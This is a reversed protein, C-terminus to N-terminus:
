SIVEADKLKGTEGDRILKVIGDRKNTANEPVEYWAPTNTDQFMLSVVDPKPEPKIRYENTRDWSPTGADRWTKPYPSYVQIEAGDAWAKILKCHKHPKKM